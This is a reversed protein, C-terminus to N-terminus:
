FCEIQEKSDCYCTFLTSLLQQHSGESGNSESLQLSKESMKKHGDNCMCGMHIDVLYHMNGEGFAANYISKAAVAIQCSSQCKHKM